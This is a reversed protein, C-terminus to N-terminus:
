LREVVADNPVHHLSEQIMLLINVTGNVMATISLALSTKRSFEVKSVLLLRRPSALRGRASAAPVVQM